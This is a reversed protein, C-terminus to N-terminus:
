GCKPFDQPVTWDYVSNGVNIVLAQGEIVDYSIHCHMTWYGPNDAIFRVLMFEGPRTQLSDKQPPHHLNRDIGGNENLMRVYEMPNSEPIPGSAIVNFYYGHLHMPHAIPKDEAPNIFFLEVVDGIDVHLVHFCKCGNEDTEPNCLTGLFYDYYHM